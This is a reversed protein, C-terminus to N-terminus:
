RPQYLIESAKRFARVEPGDAIAPRGIVHGRLSPLPDLVEDVTRLEFHLHPASHKMGSRGVVGIRDGGHVADGRKVEVVQLHMYCSRVGRGGEAGHHALCVYRGGRGMQRLPFNNVESMSLPANSRRGPLDVGVYVVKGDAVARVPEGFESEIDIGRHSRAGGDREMGLGSSVVRPAGDLPSHLQLGLRAIPEPVPRTGYYELLRRRDTLIRDEARASKVRDGWIFHSVFHRHPMQPFAGHVSEEQDRWASLLAAAFYLNPEAHRLLTEGYLFRKLKLEKEHWLGDRKVHYRYTRGKFHRRYLRQPLLTLGIGFAEEKDPRCHSQRYMLGALLFPDMSFEAGYRLLYDTYRQARGKPMSGCLKRLAKAFQVKDVDTPSEPEEPWDEPNVLVAALRNPYADPRMRVRWPPREAGMALLSLVCLLLMGKRASSTSTPLDRTKVSAM